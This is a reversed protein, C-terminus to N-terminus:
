PKLKKYRKGVDLRALEKEIAAQIRAFDVDAINTQQKLLAEARKRAEEARAIDIDEAREATDAMVYVRSDPRVEIVGGSVAMVVPNNKKTVLLRGAKLVSVLPAHNPLVTIEGSSTPITAKQVDDAYVVGEPTVNQFHLTENKNM